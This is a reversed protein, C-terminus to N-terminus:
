ASKTRPERAPVVPEAGAVNRENIVYTAGQNEPLDFMIDLMVDEM